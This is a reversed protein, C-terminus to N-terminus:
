AESVVKGLGNLGPFHIAVEGNFTSQRHSDCRKYAM